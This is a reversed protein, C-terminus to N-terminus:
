RCILRRRGITRRSERVSSLLGIGLLLFAFLAGTNPHGVSSILLFQIGIGVFVMSALWFSVRSPVQLLLALLGYAGILVEGTLPSVSLQMSVVIACLGVAVLAYRKLGRFWQWVNRKHQRAPNTSTVTEKSKVSDVHSTAAPRTITVPRARRTQQVDQILGHGPRKLPGSSAALHNSPRQMGM